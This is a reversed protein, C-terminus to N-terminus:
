SRSGLEIRRMRLVYMWESLRRSRLCTRSCHRTTLAVWKGQALTRAHTHAHPLFIYPVLLDLGVSSAIRLSGSREVQSCRVSEGPPSSDVESALIFSSAAQGTSNGLRGGVSDGAGGERGAKRGGDRGEEM